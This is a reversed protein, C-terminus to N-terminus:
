KKKSGGKKGKGGGDKKKGATSKKVPKSKTVKTPKAAAATKAAPAKKPKPKRPPGIPPIYPPTAKRPVTQDKGRPRLGKKRVAEAQVNALPGAPASTTVPPAHSPDASPGSGTPSSGSAFLHTPSVINSLAEVQQASPLPTVPSGAAEQEEHFSRVSAAHALAFVRDRLQEVGMTHILRNLRIFTITLVFVVSM